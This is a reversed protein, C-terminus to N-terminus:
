GEWVPPQYTMDAMFREWEDVAEEHFAEWDDGDRTGLKLEHDVVTQWTPNASPDFTNWADLVITPWSERWDDGDPIYLWRRYVVGDYIGVQTSLKEDSEYPGWKIKPFTAANM